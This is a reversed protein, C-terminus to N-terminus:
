YRLLDFYTYDLVASAACWCMGIESLQFQTRQAICILARMLVTKFPSFIWSISTNFCFCVSSFAEFCHFLSHFVWLFRGSVTDLSFSLTFCHGVKEQFQLMRQALRPGTSSVAAHPQPTLVAKFSKQGKWYSAKKYVSEKRRRHNTDKCLPLFFFHYLLPLATSVGELYRQQDNMVPLYPRTTLDQRRPVSSLINRLYRVKHTAKCTM